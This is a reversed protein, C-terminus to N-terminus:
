GAGAHEDVARGQGSRVQGDTADLFDLVARTFQRPAEQHPFHGVGPFSVLDSSPLMEAANRGHDIPIMRDQEGWVLLVPLRTALYLRDLASVRQGSPDVTSRLTHLFASRAETMALRRYTMWSQQVSHAPRLGIRRLAGNLLDGVAVVRHNMLLPLALESGPLAAARLALGLEPGLGGSAVLVLRECREPFLYSFQLAIGGGLSHGVITAQEVGLHDLLDRIGGAYAGLSYDGRPKASEGHGLMDPAIVRRENALDDGVESWDESNGAIGHLLVLPSGAEGAQQYSVEHGHLAM